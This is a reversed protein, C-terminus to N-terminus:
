APATRRTVARDPVRDAPVRDAPVRDAPVRDPSAAARSPQPSPAMRIGAEAAGAHLLAAEAVVSRASVLDIIAAAALHEDVLGSERLAVFGKAVAVRAMPSDARRVAAGVRGDDLVLARAVRRIDPVVPDRAVLLATTVQECRAPLSAAETQLAMLGTPSFPGILDRAQRAQRALFAVAAQRDSVRRFRGCCGRAPRGSGCPCPRTRVLKGV